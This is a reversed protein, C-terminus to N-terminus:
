NRQGIINDNNNHSFWAVNGETVIQPHVDISIGYAPNSGM